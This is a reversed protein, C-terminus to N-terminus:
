FTMDDFEDEEEEIDLEPPTPPKTQKDAASLVRKFKEILIYKFYETKGNKNVYQLTKNKGEIELYDGKKITKYINEGVIGFGRLTHWDTQTVLEGNKEKYVENTAISFDVAKKKQHPPM